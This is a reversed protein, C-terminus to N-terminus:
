LRLLWCMWLPTLDEGVDFIDLESLRDCINNMVWLRYADCVRDIGELQLKLSYSVQEVECM